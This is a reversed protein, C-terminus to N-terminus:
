RNPNPRGAMGPVASRNPPPPPPPAEYPQIVNRSWDALIQDVPMSGAPIRTRAPVYGTATKIKAITEFDQTAAITERDPANAKAALAAKTALRAQQPDVALADWRTREVTRPTETSLLEGPVTAGLLGRERTERALRADNARGTEITLQRERQALEAAKRQLELQQAERARQKAELANAAADAKSKNDPSTDAERSTPSTTGSAQEAPSPTSGQPESKNRDSNGM